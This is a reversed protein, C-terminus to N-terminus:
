ISGHFLILNINIYNQFKNVVMYLMNIYAHQKIRYMMDRGNIEENKSYVNSKEFHLM